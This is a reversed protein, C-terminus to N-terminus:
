DSEAKIGGAFSRARSFEGNRLGEVSKSRHRCDRVAQVGRFFLHSPDVIKDLMTEFGSLTWYM